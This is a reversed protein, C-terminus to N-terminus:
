YHYLNAFELGYRVAAALMAATIGRKWWSSNWRTKLSFFIGLAFSAATCALIASGLVYMWDFHNAYNAIGMQGSFHMGCIAAGCVLGAVLMTVPRVESARQLLWFAIGIVFVPLFLSAVTWPVYYTIKEQPSGNGMILAANGIFHMARSDDADNLMSEASETGYVLQM